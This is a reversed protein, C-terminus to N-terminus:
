KVLHIRLPIRPCLQSIGKKRGRKRIASAMKQNSISPKGERERKAKIDFTYEDCDPHLYHRERERQHTQTFRERIMKQSSLTKQINERKEKPQRSPSTAKVKKEGKDRRPVFWRKSADFPKRARRRFHRHVNTRGRGACGITM